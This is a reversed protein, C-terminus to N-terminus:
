VQEKLIALPIQMGGTFDGLGLWGLRISLKADVQPDDVEGGGRIALMGAAVEVPYAVAVLAQAALQLSLPGLACLAQEFM